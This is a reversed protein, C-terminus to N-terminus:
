HTHHTGKLQRNQHNFPSHVSIGVFSCDGIRRIPNQYTYDIGYLHSTKRNQSNSQMGLNQQLPTPFPCM